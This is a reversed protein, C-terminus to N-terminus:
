SRWVSGIGIKYYMKDVHFASGVRMKMHWISQLSIWFLFKIICLELLVWPCCALGDFRTLICCLLLTVIVVVPSWCVVLVKLSMLLMYHGDEVSMQDGIQNNPGLQSRTKMNRQLCVEIKEHHLNANNSWTFVKLCHLSFRMGSGSGVQVSWNIEELLHTSPKKGTPKPHFSAGLCM